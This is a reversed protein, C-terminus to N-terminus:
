KIDPIDKLIQGKYKWHLYGNYSRSKNAQGRNEYIELTLGSLSWNKGNYYVKHADVVTARISDDKIFSIQDRKKLGKTHLNSRKHQQRSPIAKSKVKTKHIQPKPYIVRGDFSHLLRSVLNEDLAFLESNKVRHKSFIEHLLREKDSYNEVEIALFRKLGTVNYYGNAELARMRKEFENTRTKGIKVLGSVTSTMVYIIGKAM